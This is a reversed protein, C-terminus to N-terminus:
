DGKHATSHARTAEAQCDIFDALAIGIDILLQDRDTDRKNSWDFYQVRSALSRSAREMQEALKNLDAM